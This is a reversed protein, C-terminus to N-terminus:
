EEGILVQLKKRGRQARKKAAEVSIGLLAATEPFSYGYVAYLYLVDREKKDLKLIAEVLNKAMVTGENTEKDILSDKLGELDMADQRKAAMTKAVNETIIMLFAKTQLDYVDGVKKINRAVRFFAEQVADEALGDDKLIQKARWHLLQEYEGYLQEFKIKDSKEDILTLFVGLM